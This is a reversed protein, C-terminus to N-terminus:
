PIDRSDLEIQFAEQYVRELFGSDMESHVAMAAGIISFTEPDRPDQESKDTSM